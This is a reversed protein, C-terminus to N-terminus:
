EQRTIGEKEQFVDFVTADLDNPECFTKTTVRDKRVFHPEIGDKVVELDDALRGLPKWALQPLPM